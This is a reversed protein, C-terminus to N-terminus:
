FGDSILRLFCSVEITSELEFWEGRGGAAILCADTLSKVQKNLIHIGGGKVGVKQLCM